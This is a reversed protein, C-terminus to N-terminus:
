EDSVMKKLQNLTNLAEIPTINNIDLKKIKEVDTNDEFIIM